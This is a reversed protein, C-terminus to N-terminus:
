FEEWDGDDSGATVPVSSARRAPAAASRTAPVRPGATRPVTTDAAAARDDRRAASAGTAGAEPRAADTRDHSVSAGADSGTKFVEASRVLRVAQDELSHAAASAQEVLAANQQTMEDMQTVAQNIQEIGASQEGSAASIEAMIDSVRKIADVIEQMTQGAQEVYKHGDSVKGASDGILTKIEKAAAASRQALSRVEGAVVAFGRGQEGARAAEVAANLALINTQFAIGDIVSIIDGIKRSSDAIAEMTSVVRGVVDGGRVAVDCAGRALQNAQRSNEANNKVTSTLQEMSAATQELSAAQSETRRSLDANGAAIERSASNIGDVATRIQQIIRQLQEATSNVDDKMRGLTGRYDADIRETLDGRALAGLVQGADRLGEETADLVSNIGDALQRYFGQKREISVRHAFDGSAAMQVIDSLEREAELRSTADSWESVTGLRTGHQDVIPTTTTDFQREGIALRASASQKLRQLAGIAAEPEDHFVGVSTGVLEDVSFGAHRDRLASEVPRLTEVLARNAYVITGQHDAIRVGTTAQDLAVRIRLNEQGLRKAEAFEYGLRTQLSKLASAVEGAEHQAGASTVVDVRGQSFLRMDGVIRRLLAAHGRYAWAALAGAGLLSAAALAVARPDTPHLAASAAQLGVLLGALTVLRARLSADRLARASRALLGSRVVAGDRVVWAKPASRLRRYAQTAAEITAADPRTRVSLYGTMAGDEWIPTANAVVWYYDGNKCRNKVVGTWPRGEKLTRWLDAFAEPPMDPHRVINHPAGILEAETFGSIHVFADNVYTIRGKPDTRSVIFQGAPWEREVDTIPLNQRM